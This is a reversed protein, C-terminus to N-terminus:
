HRKILQDKKVNLVIGDSTASAIQDPLIYRDAAFLGDADLRVYGETLLRDRLVEPIPDDDFAKAITDVISDRNDKDTADIDAPEVDPDTANEPARFDDVKGIHKHLSDYVKMGIQIGTPLQNM